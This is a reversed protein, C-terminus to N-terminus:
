EPTASPVSRMGDELIGLIREMGAPMEDQVARIHVDMSYTRNVNTGQSTNRQYSTSVKFKASGFLWGTKGETSANIKLQSDTKVYEVTNIKAKFDITTEDMRLYPIPLLTLMPVELDQQQYEAPVAPKAPVAAVPPDANPDAAVAPVAPEYPKTEKWYKFKVYIPDSTEPALPDQEDDIKKFGVEKIFNVTAMASQAQAKVVAVLPGGLMSEFDLTSLEQGPNPMHTIPNM